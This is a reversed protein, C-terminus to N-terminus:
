LSTKDDDDYLRVYGSIFNSKYFKGNHDCLIFQIDDYEDIFTGYADHICGSMDIIKFM